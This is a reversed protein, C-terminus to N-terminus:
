AYRGMLADIRIAILGTFMGISDRIIRVNSGIAAHDRSVAAPVQEVQLGLRRAIFLLEADFGFGSRRRRKFLAKAADNRFGKLGAQSDKFPLGLIVRMLLNYAGGSVGRLPKRCKVGGQIARSGIAIPAIELAADLRDLHDLSYALDGDIFMVKACECQAVGLAIADAKGANCSACILSLRSKASDLKIARNLLLVTDDTSGDDIFTFRWNAHTAAFRLFEGHVREVIAAENYLPILVEVQNVGMPDFAVWGAELPRWAPM